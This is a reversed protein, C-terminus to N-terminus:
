LLSFFSNLSKEVRKWGPVGWDVLNSSGIRYLHLCKKRKLFFNKVCVVDPAEFKFDHTVSVLEVDECIYASVLTM